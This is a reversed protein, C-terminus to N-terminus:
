TFYRPNSHRLRVGFLLSFFFTFLTSNPADIFVVSWRFRGGMSRVVCCGMPINGKKTKFWQVAHGSGIAEDVASRRFGCQDKEAATTRAHNGVDHAEKLRRVRGAGDADLWQRDRGFSVRIVPGRKEEKM